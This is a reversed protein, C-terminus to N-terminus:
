EIGWLLRIRAAARELRELESMDLKRLHAEWGPGLDRVRRHQGADEGLWREREETSPVYPM